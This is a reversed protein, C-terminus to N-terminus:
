FFVYNGVFVLCFLFYNNQSLSSSNSIQNERQLHSSSSLKKWNFIPVTDPLTQKRGKNEKQVWQHFM